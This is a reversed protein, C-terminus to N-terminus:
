DIRLPIYHNSTPLGEYLFYVDEPIWKSYDTRDYLIGDILELCNPYVEPFFDYRFSDGQEINGSNLDISLKYTLYFLNDKVYWKGIILKGSNNTNILEFKLYDRFVLCWTSPNNAQIFLACSSETDPFVDKVELRNSINGNVIEYIKQKFIAIDSKPITQIMNCIAKNALSNDILGLYDDNNDFTSVFVTLKKNNFCIFEKILSPKGYYTHVNIITDGYYDKNIEMAIAVSDISKYPLGLKRIFVAISDSLTDNKIFSKLFSETTQSYGCYVSIALAIIFFSFRKM